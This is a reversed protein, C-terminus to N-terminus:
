NDRPCKHIVNNMGIQQPVPRMDDKNVLVWFGFTSTRIGVGEVSEGVDLSMLTYLPGTLYDPAEDLSSYVKKLNNDGGLIDYVVDAYLTGAFDVRCRISAQGDSANVTKRIWGMYESEMWM